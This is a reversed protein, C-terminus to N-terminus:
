PLTKNMELDTKLQFMYAELSLYLEVLLGCPSNSTELERPPKYTEEDCDLPIATDSVTPLLPLAFLDM